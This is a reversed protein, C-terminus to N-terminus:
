NKNEEEKKDGKVRVKTKKLIKEKINEPIYIRKKGNKEIIEEIIRESKQKIGNKIINQITKIGSKPINQIEKKEM